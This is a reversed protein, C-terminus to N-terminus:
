LIAYVKLKVSVYNEKEKVKELEIEYESKIPQVDIAASESKKRRFSINRITQLTATTAVRGLKLQRTATM